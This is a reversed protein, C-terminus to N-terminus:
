IVQLSMLNGWFRINFRGQIRSIRGDAGLRMFEASNRPSFIGLFKENRGYM